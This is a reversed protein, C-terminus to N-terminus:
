RNWEVHGQRKPLECKYISYHKKKAGQAHPISQDVETKPTKNALIARRYLMKKNIIALM